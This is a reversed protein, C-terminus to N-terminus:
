RSRRMPRMSRRSRGNGGSRPLRLGSRGPMRRAKSIASTVWALALTTLLLAIVTVLAAAAEVVGFLQPMYM